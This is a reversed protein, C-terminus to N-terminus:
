GPCPSIGRKARFSVYGPSPIVRCPVTKVCAASPCSFNRSDGSSPTNLSETVASTNVRNVIPHNEPVPILVNKFCEFTAATPAMRTYRPVPPVSPFVLRGQFRCPAWRRALLSDGSRRGVPAKFDRFDPKPLRSALTQLYPKRLFRLTKPFKTNHEVRSPCFPPAHTM